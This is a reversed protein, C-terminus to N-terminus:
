KGMNEVLQGLELLKAKDQETMIFLRPMNKVVSNMFTQLGYGMMGQTVLGDIGELASEPAPKAKVRVPATWSVGTKRGVIKKKKRSSQQLVTTDFPAIVEYTHNAGPLRTGKVLGGRKFLSLYAAVSTPKNGHKKCLERCDETLFDSTRGPNAKVHEYIAKAFDSM